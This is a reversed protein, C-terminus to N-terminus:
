SKRAARIAGVLYTIWIPLTVISTSLKGGPPSLRSFEDLPELLYFRLNEFVAQPLNVITIIGFIVVVLILYIQNLPSEREERTELWRRGLLHVAWIIAGIITFSVGKLLGEELARDLGKERSERQQEIRIREQEESNRRLEEREEATLEDAAVGPPPPAVRFPVPKVGVYVPRYSFDKGLGSGLGSQLLDSLGQTLLLLGAIIIVYVYVRLLFRLPISIPDGARFRFFLFLAGGVVLAVGVLILFVILVVGIAEM